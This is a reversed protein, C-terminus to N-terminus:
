MRANFASPLADPPMREVLQMWLASNPALRPPLSSRWFTYCGLLLSRSSPSSFHISPSRKPPPPPWSIRKAGGRRKRRRWCGDTEPGRRLPLSFIFISKFVDKEGSGRNTLWPFPSLSILSPQTPTPSSQIASVKPPQLAKTAYAGAAEVVKYRLAVWADQM